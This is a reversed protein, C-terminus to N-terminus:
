VSEVDKHQRVHSKEHSKDEMILKKLLTRHCRNEDKCFCLLTINEKKSREAWYRIRDKQARMETLYRGKYEQWSVKRGNKGYFDAHLERSPAVSIDWEQWTEDQKRIYRPRYRTVLVRLGDEKSVPDSLAKIRIM